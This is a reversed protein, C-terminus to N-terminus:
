QFVEQCDLSTAIVRRSLGNLLHRVPYLVRRSWAYSDIRFSGSFFPHGVCPRPKVLECV